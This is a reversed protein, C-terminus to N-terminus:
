ALPTKLLASVSYNEWKQQKLFTCPSIPFAFDDSYLLAKLACHPHKAEAFSASSNQRSFLCRIEISLLQKFTEGWEDHQCCMPSPLVLVTTYARNSTSGAGIRYQYYKKNQLVTRCFIVWDGIIITINIPGIGGATEGRTVSHLLLRALLLSLCPWIAMVLNACYMSVPVRTQERVSAQATLTPWVMRWTAVRLNIPWNRAM